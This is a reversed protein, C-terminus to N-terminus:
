FVMVEVVGIIDMEDVMWNVEQVFFQVIEGELVICIVEGYKFIKGKGNGVVVGLDVECGEGFGNVVCGMVVVCLLVDIGEFVDIVDNVLM